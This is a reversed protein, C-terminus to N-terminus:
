LFVPCVFGVAEGEDPDFSPLSSEKMLDAINFIKEDSRALSFAAHRSNGTGSFYFIM